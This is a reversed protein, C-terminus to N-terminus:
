LSVIKSVEPQVGANETFARKKLYLMDYIYPIPKELFAMPPMEQRNPCSIEVVLRLKDFFICTSLNIKLERAADLLGSFPDEDAESLIRICIEIM